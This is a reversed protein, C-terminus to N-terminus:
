INKRIVFPLWFVRLEAMLVSEELDNKKKKQIYLKNYKGQWVLNVGHM